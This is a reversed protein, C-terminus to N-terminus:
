EYENKMREKFPANKIRLEHYPNEGISLVEYMLIGFSWVDGRPVFHLCHGRRKFWTLYSWLRNVSASTKSSDSSNATNSTDSTGCFYRVM